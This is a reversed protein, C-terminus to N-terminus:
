DISSISNTEQLLKKGKETLRYYASSFSASTCYISIIKNRILDSTIDFGYEDDAEKVKFKNDRKAVENLFEAQYRELYM